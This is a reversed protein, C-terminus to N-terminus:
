MRQLYRKGGNGAQQYMRENQPAEVYRTEEEQPLYQYTPEQQQLRQVPRAFGDDPRVSVQRILRSPVEQQDSLSVIRPQQPRVSSVRTLAERPVTEYRDEAPRVSQLRINNEGIGNTIQDHPMHRTEYQVYQRGNGYDELDHYDQDLQIIQRKSPVTPYEIFQPATPIEEQRVYAGKQDVVVPQSQQLVADRPQVPEYRQEFDVQRYTPAVSISRETPLPAEMFRNGFQDVVIRRAPPPMAVSAHRTPSPPVQRPQPSQRERAQPQVSARYQIPMPREIPSAHQVHSAARTLRPQPNSYQADYAGPSTPTRLTKASVVRRLDPEGDTFYHQGNRSLVRRAVPTIPRREHVEYAQASRGADQPQYIIREQPHTPTSNIYVPVQQIQRSSATPIYPSPSIPEEKIRVVPSVADQRRPVVNRAQEQPDPRRRRKRSAPSQVM